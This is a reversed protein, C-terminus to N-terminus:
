EEVFFEASPSLIPLWDLYSTTNSAMMDYEHNLAENVVTIEGTSITVGQTSSETAAPTFLAPPRSKINAIAAQFLDYTTDASAHTNRLHDLLVMCLHLNHEGAQRITSNPSQLDNLQIQMPPVLAIVTLMHINRTLDEGIMMNILHTVRLSAARMKRFCLARLPGERAESTESQRTSGQAIHPRYLVILTAELYVRIQHMHVMMLQSKHSEAPLGSFYTAMEDEIQEMQQQTPRAAKATYFQNLINGLSVTIRVLCLWLKVLDNMEPPLFKRHLETRFGTSLQAVEHQTPVPTTVEDLHIRMPRGFALSLWAERCHISWWLQAWLPPPGKTDDTPSQDSPLHHFGATYALNIAIGIWYWSGTIDDVRALRYSMLYVSQILAVRDREYDLDYLAKARQFAADKLEIRTHGLEGTLLQEDIFSGAAAFMSWLLLLSQQGNTYRHMFDDVDVVPAFPHVYHFYSRILADRLDESPLSLCGKQRAYSLDQPDLATSTPSTLNVHRTPSKSQDHHCIDMVLARPGREDGLYYPKRTPSAPREFFFDEQKVDLAANDMNEYSDKALLGMSYLQTLRESQLPSPRQGRTQGQTAAATVHQGVAATSMSPLQDPNMRRKRQVIECTIGDAACNACPRGSLAVTCRVKRANCSKCAVAARRHPRRSRSSSRSHDHQSMDTPKALDMAQM